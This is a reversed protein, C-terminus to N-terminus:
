RMTIKGDPRVAVAPLLRGRALCIQLIDEAGILYDKSVPLGVSEHLQGYKRLKM